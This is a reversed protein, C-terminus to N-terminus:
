GNWCVYSSTLTSLLCADETGGEDTEVEIGLEEAGGTPSRTFRKDVRTLAPTTDAFPVGKPAPAV